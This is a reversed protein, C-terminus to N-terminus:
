GPFPRLQAGTTSDYIPGGGDGPDYPWYETATLTCACSAVMALSEDTTPQRLPVILSLGCFEVNLNGLTAGGGQMTVTRTDNVSPVEFLFNPGLTLACEALGQGLTTPDGISFNFVWDYTTPFSVGSQQDYFVGARVLDTETTFTVLNTLSIPITTINFTDTDTITNNPIEPNFYFIGFESQLTWEKVRWWMPVAYKLLDAKSFFSTAPDFCWPFLGL